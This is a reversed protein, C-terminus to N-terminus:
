RSGRVIKGLINRNGDIFYVPFFKSLYYADSISMEADKNVYFAKIQGFGICQREYVTAYEIWSEKVDIKARANAVIVTRKM